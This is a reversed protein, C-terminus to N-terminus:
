ENEHEELKYTKPIEEKDYFCGGFRSKMCWPIFCPTKAHACTNIGAGIMQAHERISIQRMEIRCRHRTYLRRVLERFDVRKQATFYIFLQKAEGEGKYEVKVPKMKLGLENIHARIIGMEEHMGTNLDDDDDIM